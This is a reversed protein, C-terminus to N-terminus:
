AVGPSSENPWESKLTSFGFAPERKTPHTAAELEPRKGLSRAEAALARGNTQLTMMMMMMIMMVVDDYSLKNPPGRPDIVVAKIVSVSDGPLIEASGPRRLDRIYRM